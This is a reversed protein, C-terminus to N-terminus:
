WCVYWNHPNFLLSLHESNHSAFCGRQGAIHPNIMFAVPFPHGLIAKWICIVLFTPKWGPQRVLQDRFGGGRWWGDCLRLDWCGAFFLLHLFYAGVLWLKHATFYEGVQSPFTTFFTKKGCVCVRENAEGLSLWVHIERKSKEFM